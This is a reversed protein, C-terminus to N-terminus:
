GEQAPRVVAARNAAVKAVLISVEYLLLLPGAMLLQSVVDPTPTLAAAVIFIVVIVPRRNRALWSGTVLGWRALFYIIVPLEFALGFPILFTVLFSVYHGISLMPRVEPGAVTILFRAAFRFVTFYAFAAGAFFMLLSLLATVGVMRKEEPRLAPVIFGWVQWLIVPLAIVFGAAVALKLQTMFAEGLGIFILPADYQRLPFTVLDYLEQRFFGYVVATSIGVAVTCVVLVRRLEELHEMLTMESKRQAM